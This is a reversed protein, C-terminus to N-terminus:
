CFISFSFTGCEKSYKCKKLSYPKCTNGILINKASPEQWCFYESCLKQVSNRTAFCFVDNQLNFLRRWSKNVTINHRHLMHGPINYFSLTFLPPIWNWWYWCFSCGGRMKVSSVSWLFLGHCIVNSIWTRAQYLCLCTALNFQHILNWCEERSLQIELSLVYIYIFCCM